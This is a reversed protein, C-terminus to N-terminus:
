RANLMTEATSFTKSVIIFLTEEINLGDTARSFDIPDVNALFKMTMGNSSKKGEESFKLAEFVFEPGLYRGGIGIAVLNSLKKGTFGTCNGSRVNDSFSKIQNQVKQVEPNSNQFDRLKVHWVQRKETIIRPCIWM